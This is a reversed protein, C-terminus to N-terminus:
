KLAAFNAHIPAQSVAQVLDLEAVEVKEDLDDVLAELLGIKTEASPSLKYLLEYSHALGDAYDARGTRASADKARSIFNILPELLRAEKNNGLPQEIEPKDPYVLKLVTTASSRVDEFPDMVLDLLLRIMAPAFSEVTYPWVTANDANKTPVMLHGNGIIGSRVLITLAKLATIHRQYSSSPILEGALFELFWDVFSEHSRLMDEIENLAEENQRQLPKMGRDSSLLFSLNESERVLYATAGRLREVMHKTSSLIDNRFRADTDSYLIWMHSKLIDLNRASFPRISSASCVLVSFALSRVSDSSHTLLCGVSDEQLIVCQLLKKSTKHFNIIGSYTLVM